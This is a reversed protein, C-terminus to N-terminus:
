MHDNEAKWIVSQFIKLGRLIKAITKPYKCLNLNSALLEHLYWRDKDTAVNFVERTKDLWLMFDELSHSTKIFLSPDKTMADTLLQVSQPSLDKAQIIPKNSAANINAFTRLFDGLEGKTAYITDFSADSPKIKRYRGDTLPILWLCSINDDLISYQRTVIWDWAKPIFSSTNEDVHILDETSEFTKFHTQLCYTKLDGTSRYRLSSHLSSTSCGEQLVRLTSNSLKQREINRSQELQFLLHEDEDRHIFAAGDGIARYIGDEFPFLEVAGYGRFDPDSMVYDLLMQKTDESVIRLREQRRELWICLTQPRLHDVKCIAEVSSFLDDNLYIVPVGAENLAKRMVSSNEMKTVLGSGLTVYGLDTYWLSYNNQEVIRLVKEDIHYLINNTDEQPKPWTDFASQNPYQKALDVLLKTWATPILGDFLWHNWQGPLRYQMTSDGIEHLRARDPSM